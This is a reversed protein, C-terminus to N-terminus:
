RGTARHATFSPLSCASGPTRRSPFRRCSAKHRFRCSCRGPPPPSPRWTIPPAAEKAPLPPFSSRTGDVSLVATPSPSGDSSPRPAGTLGFVLLRQGRAARVTSAGFGVQNAFRYGSIEAAIGDGNIRGDPPVHLAVGADPVIQVSGPQAASEAVAAASGAPLISAFLSAALALQAVAGLRKTSPKAELLHLPSSAMLWLSHWKKGQQERHPLSSTCAAELVSRGVENAALDTADPLTVRGRHRLWM